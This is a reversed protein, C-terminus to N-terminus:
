WKYEFYYVPTEDDYECWVITKGNTDIYKKNPNRSIEAILPYCEKWLLSIYFRYDIKSDIRYFQRDGGTTWVLHAFTESNVRNASQNEM